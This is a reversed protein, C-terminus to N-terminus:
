PRHLSSGDQDLGDHDEVPPREASRVEEAGAVPVKETTKPLHGSVENHVATRDVTPLVLTYAATTQPGKDLGAGNCRHPVSPTEVAAGPPFIFEPTLPVTVLGAAVCRCMVCTVHGM